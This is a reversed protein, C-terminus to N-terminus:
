DLPVLYDELVEARYFPYGRANDVRQTTWAEETLDIRYSEEAGDMYQGYLQPLDEPYLSGGGCVQEAHLEVPVSDTLEAFGYGSEEFYVRIPRDLKSLIDFGFFECDPDETTCSSALILLPFLRRM